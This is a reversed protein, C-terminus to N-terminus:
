HFYRPRVRAAGERLTESSETKVILVGSMTKSGQMADDSKLRNQWTHGKGGQPVTFAARIHRHLGAAGVELRVDKFRELGRTHRDFYVNQCCRM